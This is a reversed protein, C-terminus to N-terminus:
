LNLLAKLEQVTSVEKKIVHMRLEPSESKMAEAFEDGALYAPYGQETTALVINNDQQGYQFDKVWNGRSFYTYVSNRQRIILCLKDTELQKGEQDYLTVSAYRPDLLVRPKDFNWIGTTNIGMTRMALTSYNVRSRKVNDMVRANVNESWSEARYKAYASEIIAQREMEKGKRGSLAMNYDNMKREFEQQYREYNAGEMVPTVGFTHSESGKSFTIEYRSKEGRKIMVDEWVRAALSPSYEDDGAEVEFKVSDYVALEPFDNKDYDITFNYRGPKAKAIKLPERINKVKEAYERVLTSDYLVAVTNNGQSNPSIYDWAKKVTDLYYVNFDDGADASIMDITLSAGPRISLPEGNKFALLEFMGASELNYHMGASDYHMPIGSLFIEIPDHFERYRLEIEGSVPQGKSDEFANAPVTIASGSEHVIITDKAADIMFGSFPITLSEMPPDIFRDQKAGASGFIFYAAVAVVAAASATVMAKTAWGAKALWGAQAGAAAPAASIFEDFNMYKDIDKATLKKRGVNVKYRKMM